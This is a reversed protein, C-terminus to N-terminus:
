HLVLGNGILAAFPDDDALQIDCLDLATSLQSSSEEISLEHPLIPWRLTVIRSERSHYPYLSVELHTAEGDKHMCLPNVYAVLSERPLEYRDEIESITMQLATQRALEMADELASYLATPESVRLPTGSANTMYTLQCAAFNEWSEGGPMYGTPSKSGIKPILSDEDDCEVTFLEPLVELPASAVGLLFVIDTHFTKSFDECIQVEDEYFWSPIQLVSNFSDTHQVALEEALRCMEGYSRSSIQSYSLISNTLKCEAYESILGSTQISKVLQHIGEDLILDNSVISGKHLLVPVAFIVCEQKKGFKDKVTRHEVEGKLNQLLWNGAEPSHELAWDLVQDLVCAEELPTCSLLSDIAQGFDDYFEDSARAATDPIPAQKLLGVLQEYLM